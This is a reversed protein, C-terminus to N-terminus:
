LHSLSAIAGLGGITGLITGINQPHNRAQVYLIDNPQLVLATAGNRGPLLDNMIVATLMAKGTPDRRIIDVNKKDGDETVGGVLAYATTLTLPQDDPIPVVGPTKVEGLALIHNTNAPVLFVDGPMVPFADPMVVAGVVQAIEPNRVVLFLIDGPVLPLYPRTPRKYSSKSSICRASEGAALKM